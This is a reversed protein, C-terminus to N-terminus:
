QLLVVQAVQPKEVRFDPTPTEGSLHPVSVPGPADRLQTNASKEMMEAERGEKAELSTMVWLPPPAHGTRCLHEM